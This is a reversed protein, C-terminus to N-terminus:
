DPLEAVVDLRDELGVTRLIRRPVGDGSVITLRRGAKRARGDANIIMSLGTSDIFRIGRLDIIVRAPESREIDLLRTEVSGASSIDLEGTLQIHVGDGRESSELEVSM